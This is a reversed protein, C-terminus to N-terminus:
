VKKFFTKKWDCVVSPSISYKSAIQNITKDNKIAELAVKLKFDSTYSKHRRIM